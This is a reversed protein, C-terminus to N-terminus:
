DTITIRTILDGKAIRGAVDRGSTVKGFVTYRGDLDPQAIRHVRGETGPLSAFVPKPSEKGPSFQIIEILFPYLQDVCLFLKRRGSLNHGLLIESEPM